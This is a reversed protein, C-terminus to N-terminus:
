SVTFREINTASTFNLLLKQGFDSAKELEDHAGFGFYVMLFRKTNMTVSTRESDSTPSGFAGKSDRLVPLSEINLEGRSIGEYVDDARGISLEIQGDIKDLDYGGISFGSSVSALNVVDVVNNIQYLDNGKIVRRMLAEASLRYRAPDKGLAKYAKRSTSIAPFQSVEDMKRSARIESCVESIKEWLLANYEVMTVNCALCELKVNPWAKRFEESISIEIM